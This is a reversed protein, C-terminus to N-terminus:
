LVYLCIKILRVKSKVGFLKNMELYNKYIKNLFTVKPKVLTSLVILITEFNINWYFVKNWKVFQRSLTQCFPGLSLLLPTCLISLKGCFPPRGATRYLSLVGSWSTSAKERARRVCSGVRDLELVYLFIKFDRNLRTLLCPRPRHYIFIVFCFHFMWILKVNTVPYSYRTWIVHDIFILYHLTANHVVVTVVTNTNCRSRNELKACGSPTLRRKRMLCEAM